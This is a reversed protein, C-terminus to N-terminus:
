CQFDREKGVPHFCKSQYHGTQPHCLAVIQPLFFFDIKLIFHSTTGISFEHM